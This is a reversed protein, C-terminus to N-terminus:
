QNIYHNSVHLVRDRIEQTRGQNWFQSGLYGCTRRTVSLTNEDTNGCNPCRWFLKHNHDEEIKIEGSYGCKECYDVKTNFEAYMINEYMYQMIKLIAQTNDKLNPIEIYSIAGGPSLAQFEAEFKLKKFADINERVCVHYSNTIYNHDTIEPILGFDEQLAKAFKYTTSELPTGYISYDINEEEKWKTCKDNMYQMVSLAFPKGEPDTHSKGTMYLTMEYLGAYGLSITSYGNYLLKDIVEGKQLRALAGYQWLIPATDSLTGLLRKHRCQLAKHCLELREDFIKWFKNIDKGSSLAIHPLNITVVGQNFRGYYKHKNENYSIENAINGIGNETFRDPTLFSRCGMPPYVDGKLQLMKKESIIDPMMTEAICKAALKTLYYYKSGEYTNNEGLVYLLKPFTAILPVGQSNPLKEIRQKLVEEILLALDDRTQGEPAENLYMFLSVFPTQGNTTMLTVLQYQITQIASTIERKLRMETITDITEDEYWLGTTEFEEIIQKKIKQRSINVFPALHALSISQGGYQSSAVQAVIQTAVNAATLLSHPKHIATDTIVTGNQLMDNLNILDCNGTIIGNELTFSHTIPEEICWAKVLENNRYPKIDIVKWKLNSTNHTTFYYSYLTSNIKYNTDRNKITKSSIHYGAIGSCEEIFESLRDDTTCIKNIKKYGDAAYYGKFALAKHHATMFQWGKGNIFNQKLNGSIHMIKDNSKKIKMESFGALKFINKYKLKKGCLRVETSPYTTGKRKRDYGDGTIFGLCFSFADEYNNINIEVNNKMKYLYNGIQLNTTVTGDELIWRHNPTCNIKQIRNGNQFTVTQMNQLGYCHVTAERIDGNKDIIYVIDGDKFDKFQRIGKSTVFKTGGTFCNHIKQIFYDSDHFHIWGKKHAEVVDSPLLVRLTLDKSVEGAIYDRQTSSRMPNKNSNEQKIEENKYEILALISDDTSNKKRALERIYRYETYNKAVGYAQQRMIERIVIDQIEEINPSYTFKKLTNETKEAVVLIQTKTMRFEEAVSNNAKTVATIIKDISFDVESGNRKIIKM